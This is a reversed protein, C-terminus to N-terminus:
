GAGNRHSEALVDELSSDPLGTLDDPIAEAPEHQDLLAFALKKYKAKGKRTRALQDAMHDRERRYTAAKRKAAALRRELDVILNLASAVDPQAESAM